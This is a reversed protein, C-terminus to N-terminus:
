VFRLYLEGVLVRCYLCVNCNYFVGGYGFCCFNKCFLSSEIYIGGVGM